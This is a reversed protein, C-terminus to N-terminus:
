HDEGLCAPAPPQPTSDNGSITIEMHDTVPTMCARRDPINDITVLCEYCIGMGCFVGRPDGSKRTRLTRIGAATMASHVSEGEYAEIIRGNVTISVPRGKQQDCHIRLDGSEKINPKCM